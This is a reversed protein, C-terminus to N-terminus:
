YSIFDTQANTYITGSSNYTIGVGKYSFSISYSACNPNHMYTMIIRKDSGTGVQAHCYTYGKFKMRWDPSGLQAGSFEAGNFGQNNAVLSGGLEWDSMTYDKYWLRGGYEYPVFADGLQFAFSDNGKPQHDATFEYTPYIYIVSGSKFATVSFTIDYFVQNAFLGVDKSTSPSLSSVAGIYQLDSLNANNKLDNVICKKIDNDLSNIMDQPMGSAQLIEDDSLSSLTQAMVSVTNLQLLMSLCLSLCLILKASKPMVLIKKM